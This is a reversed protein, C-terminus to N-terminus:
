GKRSRALETSKSVKTPPPSAAQAAPATTKSRPRLKPAQHPGASRSARQGSDAVPMKVEENDDYPREALRAELARKLRFKARAAKRRNIPAPTPSCALNEAVCQRARRCVAQSCTRWEQLMNNMRQLLERRFENIDEPMDDSEPAPKPRKMSNEDHQAEHHNRVFPIPKRAARFKKDSTGRFFAARELSPSLAGFPANVEAKRRRARPSPREGKPAGDHRNKAKPGYSGRSPCVKESGRARSKEREGQWTWGV